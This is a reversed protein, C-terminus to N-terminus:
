GGACGQEDLRDRHDLQAVTQALRSAGFLALDLADQAREAVCDPRLDSRDPRRDGADRLDVERLGLRLERVLEVCRQRGLAVVQAPQGGAGGLQLQERRTVRQEGAIHDRDRDREREILAAHEDRARVGATLRDRELVTPRSVSIACAPSGIGASCPERMGTKWFTKASMPSSCLMSCDSEVKEPCTVFM